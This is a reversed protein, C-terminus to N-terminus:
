ACTIEARERLYAELDAILYVASGELKSCRPGVGRRRWQRLVAQSVGLIKAARASSVREGLLRASAQLATVQQELAELRGVVDFPFSRM